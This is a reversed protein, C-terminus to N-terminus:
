IALGSVAKPTHNWRQGLEELFSINRQQLSDAEARLKESTDFAHLALISGALASAYSYFAIHVSCGAAKAADIQSVLQKAHSYATEFGRSLFNSPRQGHFDKLKNKLLFPHYLVCYCLHFLTQSFVFPGLVSQDIHGSTTMNQLVIQELPKQLSFSPELYILNSQIAALESRHDWPPVKNDDDVGQLMFRTARGLLNAILLVLAFPSTEPPSFSQQEFLQSLTATSKPINNRWSKEDCPLQLQCSYESISAPRGRGCTALRDLLYLSWFVRRREEQAQFSLESPPHLMLKMDQALRIAIGIKIWASSHHPNGATFDFISLLALTQTVPLDAKTKDLYIASVIKWSCTAAQGATEQKNDTLILNDSFRLTTAVIALLLYDPIEQDALSLRFSDEHFFSYPQNHCHEFYIDVLRDILPARILQFLPENAPQEPDSIESTGLRQPNDLSMSDRHSSTSNTSARSQAFLLTLIQQQNEVISQIQAQLQSIDARLSTLTVSSDNQCLILIIKKNIPHGDRLM